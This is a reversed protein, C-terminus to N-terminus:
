LREKRITDAVMGLQMAENFSIRDESYQDLFHSTPLILVNEVNTWQANVGGELPKVTVTKKVCNTRIVVGVYQKREGTGRLKKAITALAGLEIEIGMVDKM